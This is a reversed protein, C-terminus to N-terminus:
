NSDKEGKKTFFFKVWVLFYKQIQQMFFFFFFEGVLNVVIKILNQFVNGNGSKRVKKNRDKEAHIKQSQINYGTMHLAGCMCAGAKLALKWFRVVVQLPIYLNFKHYNGIVNISTKRFIVVVETPSPTQCISVFAKFFIGCVPSM